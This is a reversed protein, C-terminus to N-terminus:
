ANIIIANNDARAKRYGAIKRAADDSLKYQHDLQVSHTEIETVYPMRLAGTGGFVAGDKCLKVDVWVDSGEVDEADTSVRVVEAMCQFTIHWVLQGIKLEKRAANDM